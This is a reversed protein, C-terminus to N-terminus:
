NRKKGKGTVKAPTLVPATAQYLTSSIKNIYYLGVMSFIFCTTVCVRHILGSAFLALLLCLLIEPFIKAQFGKGFVLNELNNFATLSFVFLGSGLLGGQITLWETSALQRSYMQMGAFLLLSLLSSLALSTGTGVVMVGAGPDLLRRQGLFVAASGPATAQACADARGCKSGARRGTEREAGTRLARSSCFPRHGQSFHRPGDCRHPLPCHGPSLPQPDRPLCSSWGHAGLVTRRRLGKAGPRFRPARCGWTIVNGHGAQWPSTSSPSRPRAPSNRFKVRSRTTSRYRWLTLTPPAM